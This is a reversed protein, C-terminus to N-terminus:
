REKWFEQYAKILAEMDEDTLDVCCSYQDDISVGDNDTICITNDGIYLKLNM